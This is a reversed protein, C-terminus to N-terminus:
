QADGLPVIIEDDRVVNLNRRVLEDALDPDVRRPDLMAVQRRLADKTQQAALTKEVLVGREAKYDQWAFIGTPGALAHYVFYGSLAICAAPLVARLLSQRLATRDIM